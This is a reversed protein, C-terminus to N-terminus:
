IIKVFHLTSFISFNIGIYIKPIPIAKSVNDGDLFGNTVYNCLEYCCTLAFISFIACTQLSNKLM